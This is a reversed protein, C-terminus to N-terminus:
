VSVTKECGPAVAIEVYSREVGNVTEKITKVREGSVSFSEADLAFACKWIIENESLNKFAVTTKDSVYIDASIEGLSFGGVKMDKIEDPLCPCTEATRREANLSLGLLGQLASSILTFSIEPYDGNKGQSAHVHPLDIRDGIYKMWSWGREAQNYPFFVGPLYTYSEINAMQTKPDKARLDIEDLLRNNREGPQTVLKLPMIFCTEAGIIGRVSKTWKSYKKGRKDEGFVYEGSECVSWEENFYKKLKEARSIYAEAKECEGVAKLLNGFSILAMYLAGICDGAEAYSVGSENYSASGQWINGVGEPIGNKENLVIGDRSSTFEGLIGECFNIFVPALYRSDGTLFWLKCVTEVLEYQSLIERVFRKNNPTDMYYVSGDFNLAWPAYYGTKEGAKSVFSLLMQYNEENYGLFAAGPAQHVFDRIYFATRDHYGAWYSPIYDRPEAWSKSPKSIKKSKKSFRGSPGYWKNGDGFNIQGNKTGTVVFEPVKKQAWDM